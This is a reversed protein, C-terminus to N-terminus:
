PLQALLKKPATMRYSDLIIAALEDRDVDVFHVGIWGNRGVYPPVYFRDPESAVLMEQVGPPAKCMFGSLDENIKVFIKDRVRFSPADHGGFPRNEAEPLALCIETVLLTARARAKATPEAM